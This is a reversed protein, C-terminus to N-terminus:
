WIGLFKWWIAGVGIWIVINTLSVIFGLRWWTGLPVYGSGYLIPAPGSGYQTLCGFLNSLFGLFLAALLAPTGIAISAILFPAYMAGVQALSSAFFYHSYFYIVCLLLFGIPWSFGHVYQVVWQSFWETLGFKNLFSALTILTSFWILTEWASKEELLEDWSLVGTLLLLSLGFLAVIAANFGIFPGAIWLFILLVFTTAMIWESPKMKGLSDLQKKSFAKANEPHKIQPPYIKYLLLPILFLSVVGPVISALAWSGWTITIGFGQAIEAILPNAAMSTLFLAATIASSQFTLQILFAGIKKSSPSNPESEFAQALGKVIPYLIGGVRATLSPVTPSLLFDTAVIGYGLGLTSKGLLHIFFYAIRKGLGTKIIGKAIFFSFVVLWVVYNSFGQFAQEFTLVKTLLSITLGLLAMAGMPLPKIVIGLITSIFIAFLHWSNQTIEAPHPTIWISFGLFVTLLFLFSKRNQLIINM